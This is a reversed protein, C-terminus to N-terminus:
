DRLWVPQLPPGDAILAAVLLPLTRPAFLEGAADGLATVSWWRFERFIGVESPEPNYRATPQFRRAPVLYIDEHQATANGGRGFSHTRRWLLRPVGDVRLGTEEWVERRLADLRDEEPKVGGGPLLWFDGACDPRLMRLLLVRTDAESLILARVAQRRRM